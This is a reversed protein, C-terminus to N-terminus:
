NVAYGRDTLEAVLEDARDEPLTVEVLAGGGVSPQMQGPWLDAMVAQVAGATADIQLTRVTVEQRDITEIIKAVTNHHVGWRKAIRYQTWGANLAAQVAARRRIPAALYNAQAADLEDAIPDSM